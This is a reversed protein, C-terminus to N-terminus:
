FGEILGVSCTADPVGQYLPEKILVWWQCMSMVEVDLHNLSKVVATEVSTRVPCDDRGAFMVHARVRIPQGALINLNPGCFIAPSSELCAFPKSYGARDSINSYQQM